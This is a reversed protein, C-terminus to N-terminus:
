NKSFFIGLAIARPIKKNEGCTKTGNHCVAKSFATSVHLM